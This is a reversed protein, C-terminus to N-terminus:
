CLWQINKFYEPLQEQLFQPYHVRNANTMYMDMNRIDEFTLFKFVIDAVLLIKMM